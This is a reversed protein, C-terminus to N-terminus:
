SKRSHQRVEHTRRASAFERRQTGLREGDLYQSLVQIDRDAVNTTQFHDKWGELEHAVEEAIARADAQKMGFSRSQSLANHLSSEAGADGVLLAQYGLGQASPAMDFAPALSYTGDNRRLLAHNKEHDDTNDMLINFVMRRFLQQQHQAIEGSPALRRLLQALEPYGLNEGAARLAVNASVAHLRKAGVRDFRRIAVAHGSALGLARTPAANIGCRAALTMTAHEILEMDLEDGESFKV